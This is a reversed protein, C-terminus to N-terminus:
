SPHRRRGSPPTADCASVTPVGSKLLALGAAEALNLVQRM